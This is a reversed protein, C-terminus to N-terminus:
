DVLDRRFPSQDSRLAAWASRYQRALKRILDRRQEGPISKWSQSFRFLAGATNHSEGLARGLDVLRVEKLSRRGVPAEQFYKLAQPFADNLRNLEETILGTQRLAQGDPNLAPTDNVVVPDSKAQSTVNGGSYSSHVPHRIEAPLNEPRIENSGELIVAREIANKLQRINGPWSHQQLFRAAESSIRAITKGYERNFKELFHQALVPVDDQRERLPPVDIQFVNLRYYLDERFRGNRVEDALNRHTAAVVRVDVQIVRSGGVRKLSGNELLRLLKVQMPLPMEGIEDLFITGKTAQEFLGVRQETAGTFAGREHGFLESELLSEPLAGCNLAVFPERKRASMSHIATALLEKGTGSEGLILVKANSTAVQEIQKRLNLVSPSAGIIHEFGLPEHIPNRRKKREAAVGLVRTLAAQYDSNKDLYDFFGTRMAAVANQVTLADSHATLMVLTIDPAVKLLFEGAELGTMTPMKYDLLAVDFDRVDAASMRMVAKGSTVAKVQHGLSSCLASIPTRWAHEDDAILIKM